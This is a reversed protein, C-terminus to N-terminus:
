EALEELRERVDALTNPSEGDRDLHIYDMGTRRAFEADSPTDGVYVYAEADARDDLVEYFHTDPKLRDIAELGPDRGIAHEVHGDLGTHEVFAEVVAQPSNSIISVPYDRGIDEVLDVDPYPGIEGSEIAALKERTYRDNRVSWLEEVPVDFSEAAREFERLNAPYLRGRHAESPEIDFAALTEDLARDLWDLDSESDLLVGDLDFVVHM